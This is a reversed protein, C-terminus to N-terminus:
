EHSLSDLDKDLLSFIKYPKKGKCKKLLSKYKELDFFENQKLTSVILPALIAAILHIADHRSVKKKRMANFFQYAEIPDKTDLQNEVITHLAIHLFPDEESDPDFRHDKLIDAMAFQKGYQDEHELMVEGLRKEEPNLMHLNKSKALEWVSHMRKRDLRSLERMMEDQM